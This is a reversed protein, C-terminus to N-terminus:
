ILLTILIHLFLFILSYVQNQVEKTLFLDIDKELNLIEKLYSVYENGNKKGITSCSQFIVRKNQSKPLVIRIQAFNLWQNEQM